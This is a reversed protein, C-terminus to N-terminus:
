EADVPRFPHGDMVDEGGEFCGNHFLDGNDMVHCCGRCHPLLCIDAFQDIQHDVEEHGCVCLKM